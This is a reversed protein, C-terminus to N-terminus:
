CSWEERGAVSVRMAHCAANYRVRACHLESTRCTSDVLGLAVGEPTLTEVTALSQCYPLVLCCFGSLLETRAGAGERHCVSRTSVIPELSRQQAGRLGPCRPASQDALVNSRSPCLRRICPPPGDGSDTCDAASYAGLLLPAQRSCSSHLRADWPSAGLTNVLLAQCSSCELASRLPTQVFSIGSDRVQYELAVPGTVQSRHSPLTRDECPCRASNGCATCEVIFM